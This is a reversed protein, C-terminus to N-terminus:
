AAAHWRAAVAAIDLPRGTDVDIAVAAEDPALPQVRGACAELVALGAESPDDARTQRAAVRQRLVAADARCDLITFPVGAQGALDAFPQRAAHDLFVADVITPYGADLSAAAADRLRAYTRRTAEASYVVAEGLAASSDLAALGFLRKREVDSRVRVAGGAEVLALALASKGSGPLGRTIALRPAAPQRLAEATGLYDPGDRGSGGRFTAVLARVLARYVAYYRHLPLGGYDGTAELWRDLARAALDHRGHAHLDMTLFAFDAQIDIWRLAPDFEICDFATVERDLAILNGLHLDGHGERVWGQARRSALLPGLRRGEADCWAALAPIRPDASRARLGAVVRSTADVVAATSGWPRDAGARPADRHFIGLRSALADITAADLRGEALRRSLLADAPFERMRVACDIEPGDGAFTPAQPTGRIAVVDLYISPALRLNLRLEDECARRRSARTGFDVFDLRVPKKIKWADRGDLLVWSIHTEVRRVARGTAAALARQLADIDLTAPTASAM